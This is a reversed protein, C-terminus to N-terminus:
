PSNPAYVLSFRAPGQNEKAPPRRHIMSLIQGTNISVIRVTSVKCVKCVLSVLSANCVKSVISVINVLISVITVTGGILIM